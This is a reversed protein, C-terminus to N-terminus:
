SQIVYPRANALRLGEVRVFEKENLTALRHGFRLCSAAILMDHAGIRKGRDELKAWLEAHHRACLLDFTLTPTERIVAEVFIERGPRYSPDSRHVGHLLESATVSSIFIDDGPAEAEIFAVLDFKKREAAILISSDLILGM